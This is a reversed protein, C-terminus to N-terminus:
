PGKKSHWVVPLYTTVNGLLFYYVYVYAPESYLFIDVINKQQGSLVIIGAFCYHERADFWYCVYESKAESDGIM